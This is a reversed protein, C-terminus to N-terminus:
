KGRPGRAAFTENFARLSGSTADIRWNPEGERRKDYDFWIVAKVQDRRGASRYADRIWADRQGGNGPACGFETIMVPRSPYRKSIASLAQDFIEDFTQWKHWEDYRDGFNYGDVGIWDVYEDGPYYRHMDNGQTDPCSEANPAWVWAVNDAGVGRLIDHVHRWAAIYAAPDGSWTFWDGNFEFGFRLLLPRGWAKAALAWRKFIADYEGASIAPLHSDQRRGHWTWLELSIVPTAGHRAIADAAFKPFPCTLDRYFMVYQPKSAFRALSKDLQTKFERSWLIQYIGWQLPASREACANGSSQPASLMWMCAFGIIAAATAPGNRCWM